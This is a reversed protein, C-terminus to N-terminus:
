KRILEMAKLIHPDDAETFDTWKVELVADPIVGRGELNDGNPLQFGEQAVWLRSGDSFDYPYVTETNGATRIGVVQARGSAQLAAALVEAYSQSNEDVLVALPVDRLREHLSGQEIELPYKRNQTYFNGVNGTVFQGLIGTLVNRWGGENARLDLILGELQPGALLDNLKDEVQEAMDDAWLSPVILYGITPRNALRSASPTIKGRVAKRTLTVQRPPKGPSEVTLRVQTDEPGRITNANPDFPVGDVHTIRDRRKLSAREAPSGPFVLLVLAASEEYTSLIGVGVYSNQGSQLDDEEQADTPSIYRSHEDNLKDVMESLLSYFETSSSAGLVRPRYEERLAGWDAGHYDSYLYNEQVTQWVDDFIDERDSTPLLTATPSGSAVSTPRATTAPTNSPLARTRPPAPTQTTFSSATSPTLRQTPPPSTSTSAPPLGSADSCAALALILLLLTATFLLPRQLTPTHRAMDGYTSILQKSRSLMM